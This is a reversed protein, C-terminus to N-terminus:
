PAAAPPCFAWPPWNSGLLNLGKLCPRAASASFAYMATNCFFYLSCFPTGWGSIPHPVDHQPSLFDGMHNYWRLSLEETWLFVGVSMGM